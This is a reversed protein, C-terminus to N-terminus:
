AGPPAAAATDLRPISSPKGRDGLLDFVDAALYTATLFVYHGLMWTTPIMYYAYKNPVQERFAFFVPIMLFVFADSIANRLRWRGGEDDLFLLTAYLTWYYRSLVLATFIFVYGLLFADNERRRLVALLFLLAVAARSVNALTEQREYAKERHRGIQVAPTALDDIFLHQLGIRKPGLYHKATHHGIKVRFDRWVSLGRPHMAGMGFLVIMLAAMAGAFKLREPRIRRERIADILWVIGAAAILFAPFIRTMVAWAFFPTSALYKKKAFLCFGAVTGFFWDWRIYGAVTIQENAYYAFFFAAFAAAVRVGFAWGVFLFSALILLHDFGFLIVRGAPNHLSVANALFSGLTNWTPTANYGHDKFLLKWRHRPIQGKMYELDKVFEAWREPTFDDRKDIRGILFPQPRLRYSRMDRAASVHSLWDGNENAAKLTYNYLYDYRVEKSYKSGLYYHYINWYQDLRGALLNKTPPWAEIWTVYLALAVLVGTIARQARRRDRSVFRGAVLLAAVFIAVASKKEGPGLDKEDDIWDVPLALTEAIDRAYEVIDLGHRLVYFLPGAFGIVAFAIIAVNLAHRRREYDALHRSIADIMRM